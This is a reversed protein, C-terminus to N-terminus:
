EKELIAKKFGEPKGAPYAGNFCSLCYSVHDPMVRELGEISLYGLTDADLQQRVDDITHQAAVLEEYSPTDVGYYCPHILPPASSRVHVERAGASRLMKVIKRCTTGRVISDDVVVVRKGQIVGRVTNYKVKAGFDRISQRPEIFTRGVYHNRILGLEFPIGSAQSYGIAAPIASDPVGIVVDAEVPHERHLERGLGTRLEYISQGSACLSDPRSFYINEFVCFAEQAPAFPTRSTLGGASISVIEGQRVEREYTAGLLDMACTESTVVWGGDLRGLCLPRIGQPDRVAILREPTLIVLSYAGKIRMLALLLAEDFDSTNAHAILHLLIESDTTTQFIAGRRELSGRLEKANTLNGNHAVAMVGGHYNALLPQANASVNSGTTSYRVHGIANRGPLSDLVTQNFVDAVLGDGKHMLLRGNHASVIGTNEQGRHQLAYLALYSIKAAEPCGFVGVLGCEEHFSTNEAVPATATPHCM